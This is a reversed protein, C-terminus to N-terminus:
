RLQRITEPKRFRGQHSRHNPLFDVPTTGRRQLQSREDGLAPHTRRRTRCGRLQHGLRSQRVPKKHNQIAEPDGFERGGQNRIERSANPPQQPGLKELPTQLRKTRELHM